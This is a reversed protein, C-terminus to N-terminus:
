SANKIKITWNVFAGYNRINPDRHKQLLAHLDTEDWKLTKAAIAIRRATVRAEKENRCQCHSVIEEILAEQANRARTAARQFRELDFSPRKIQPTQHEDHM